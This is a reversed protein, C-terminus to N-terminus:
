IHILSLDIDGQYKENLFYPITKSLIKNLKNKDIKIEWKFLPSNKCYAQEIDYDYDRVSRLYPIKIKFVDESNATLGGCTSHYLADIPENKYTMILKQTLKSALYGKITEVTQGNYAQCHPKNCLDYNKHRKYKQNKITYTRAAIAQAKLAELNFSDPMESVVVCSIYDELEIKVVLIGDRLYLENFYTSFMEEIGRQINLKLFMIVNDKNNISKLNYNNILNLTIVDTNIFDDKIYTFNGVKNLGTLGVMQFNKLKNINIDEIGLTLYITKKHIDNTELTDSSKIKQYKLYGILLQKLNLNKSDNRFLWQNSFSLEQPKITSFINFNMPDIKKLNMNLILNLLDLNFNYIFPNSYNEIAFTNESIFYINDNIKVLFPSKDPLYALIEYNDILQLNVSYKRSLLIKSPYFKFISYYNSSIKFYDFNTNNFNIDYINFLKYIQPNNKQYFKNYVLSQYTFLIKGNQDLYDRFKLIVNIPLTRCDNVILLDIDFSDLLNLSKDTIIIYKIKNLHLFKKLFYFEKLYRKSLNYFTNYSFYIGIIQYDKNKKYNKIEQNYFFNFLISQTYDYFYIITFFFFSLTTLFSLKLLRILM